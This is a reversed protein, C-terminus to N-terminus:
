KLAEHPDQNDADISVIFISNDGLRVALAVDQSTCRESDDVSIAYVRARADVYSRTGSPDIGFCVPHHLWLISDDILSLIKGVRAFYRAPATIPSTGVM